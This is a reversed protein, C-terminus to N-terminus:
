LTHKNGKLYHYNAYEMTYLFLPHFIKILKQFLIILPHPTVVPRRGERLRSVDGRGWRKRLM